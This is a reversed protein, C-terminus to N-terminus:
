RKGRVCIHLLHILKIPDEPGRIGLLFVPNIRSSEDLYGPFGVLGSSDLHNNVHNLKVFSKIGNETHLM